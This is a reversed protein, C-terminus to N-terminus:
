LLQGKLSLTAYVPLRPYLPSMLASLLHSLVSAELALYTPEIGVRLVINGMTMEDVVNTATIMIM